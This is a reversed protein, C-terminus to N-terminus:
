KTNRTKNGHKLIAETIKLDKPTDIDTTKEHNTVLGRIDPGYVKNMKIFKTKTADVMGNQWYVTPLWQRPVDTGLSNYYRTTLLPKIKNSHSNKMTWMKYPTHPSPLSITRVSDCNEKIMLDLVTDIDEATRFPATPRLIVIIEPHWNRNKELWVLAHRLFQIDTANDGSINKPRLFPVDAGLSKAVSAIKEDDTSVVFADMKKSEQASKITYYILPKGALLAINKYPIGKSGGRAPIIGVVKIEKKPM